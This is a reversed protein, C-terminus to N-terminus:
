ELATFCDGESLYLKGPELEPAFWLGCRQWCIWPFKSPVLTALSAPRFRTRHSGQGFSMLLDFTGTCFSRATVSRMCIGKNYFMWSNLKRLLEPLKSTGIGYEFVNVM